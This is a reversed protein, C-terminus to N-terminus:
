TMCERRATATMRSCSGWLHQRRRNGLRFDFVFGFIRDFGCPRPRGLQPLSLSSYNYSLTVLLLAYLSPLSGSRRICLKYACRRLLSSATIEGAVADDQHRQLGLRAKINLSYAIIGRRGHGLSQFESPSGASYM